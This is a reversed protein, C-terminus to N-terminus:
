SSRFHCPVTHICCFSSGVCCVSPADSDADDRDVDEADVGTAVGTTGGNWTDVKRRGGGTAVPLVHDVPLRM